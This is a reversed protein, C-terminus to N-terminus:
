QKVVVKKRSMSIAGKSLNVTLIMRLMESTLSVAVAMAFLFAELWHGKSLGNLLFALPVIVMIFPIMLWAFKNIGKDFGTLDPNM